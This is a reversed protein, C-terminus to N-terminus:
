TKSLYSPVSYDEFNRLEHYFLMARFVEGNEDFKATPILAPSPM